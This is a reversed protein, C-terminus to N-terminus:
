PQRQRGCVAKELQWGVGVAVALIPWRWWWAMNKHMLKCNRLMQRMAKNASLVAAVYVDAQLDAYHQAHSDHLTDACIAM